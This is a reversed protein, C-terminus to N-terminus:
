RRAQAPDDACVRDVPDPDHTPQDRQRQCDEVVGVARERDGRQQERPLRQRREDHRPQDRPYLRGGRRLSSLASYKKSATAVAPSATSRHCKESGPQAPGQLARRCRPMPRLRAAARPPPLPRARDLAACGASLAALESLLRSRLRLLCFALRVGRQVDAERDREDSPGATPPATTAAAPAGAASNM